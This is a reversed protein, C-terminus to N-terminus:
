PASKQLPTLALRKWEADSLPEHSDQLSHFIGRRSTTENYYGHARLIREVAVSLDSYLQNLEAHSAARAVVQFTLETTVWEFHMM